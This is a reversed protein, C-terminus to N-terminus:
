DNAIKMAAPDGCPWAAPMIQGKQGVLYAGPYPSM